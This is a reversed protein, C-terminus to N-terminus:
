GRRQIPTCPYRWAAGTRWTQWRSVYAIRPFTRYVDGGRAGSIPCCQTSFHKLKCKLPNQTATGVGPCLTPLRLDALSWFLCLSQQPDRMIPTSAKRPTRPPTRIALTSMNIAATIYALAGVSLKNRGGCIVADLESCWTTVIRVTQNLALFEKAWVTYTLTHKKHNKCNNGEDDDERTTSCGLKHRPRKFGGGGFIGTWQTHGDEEEAKWSTKKYVM